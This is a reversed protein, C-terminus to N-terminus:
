FNRKLIVLSDPQLAPHSILCNWQINLLFNIIVLAIGAKRFFFIFSMLEIKGLRAVTCESSSAAAAAGAATRFTKQQRGWDRGGGWVQKDFNFKGGGWCVTHTHM